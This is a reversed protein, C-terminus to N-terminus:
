CCAQADAKCQRTTPRPCVGTGSMRGDRGGRVPRGVQEQGCMAAYHLPTLGDEDSANDDSGASVLLEVVECQGRDAAFHLATCGSEDRLDLPWSGAGLLRAVGMVDGQGALEHMADEPLSSSAAQM